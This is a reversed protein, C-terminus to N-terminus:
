LAEDNNIHTKIYHLLYGGSSVYKKDKLRNKFREQTRYGTKSVHPKIMNLYYNIIEM